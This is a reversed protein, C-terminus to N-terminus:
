GDDHEGKEVAPPPVVQLYHSFFDPKRKRGKPTRKERQGRNHADLLAIFELKALRAARQNSNEKMM